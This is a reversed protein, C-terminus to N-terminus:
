GEVAEMVVERTKRKVKNKDFFETLNNEFSLGVEYDDSLRSVFSDIRNDRDKVTDIHERSVAKKDIPFYVPEVENTKAKWLYVRPKHDEQDATM